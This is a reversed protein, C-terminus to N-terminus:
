KTQDSHNEEEEEELIETPKRFLRIYMLLILALAWGTALVYDFVNDLEFLGLDMGQPTLGSVDVRLEPSKDTVTQGM